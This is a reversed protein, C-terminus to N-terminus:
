AWRLCRNQHQYSRLSRKQGGQAPIKSLTLCGHLGDRQELKVTGQSCLFLLAWFVGVRDQDLHAPAQQAWAHVLEEFGVWIDDELWQSVFTRLAATTEPLTERHALDKLQAIAARQSYRKARQGHRIKQEQEELRDAIDELCQILEGLSVSRQLPPPAVPRRLLHRELRLPLPFPRPMTGEGPDLDWGPEELPEQPFTQAELVEAKLGVLVAAALFAESAEALDHEYRGGRGDSPKLGEGARRQWRQQLHDLFGGVVGIVDIDWPDLEGKEVAEQLLRIALRAGAGSNSGAADL